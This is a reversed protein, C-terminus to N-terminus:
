AVDGMAQTSHLSSMPSGSQQDGHRWGEAEVICMLGAKMMSLFHPHLAPSEASKSWSCRMSTEFQAACPVGNALRPAISAPVAEQANTDDRHHFISGYSLVTVPVCCALRRAFFLSEETERARLM